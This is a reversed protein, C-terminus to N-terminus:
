QQLYNLCFVNIYKEIRFGSVVVYIDGCPSMITGVILDTSVILVCEDFSIYM